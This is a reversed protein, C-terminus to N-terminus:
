SFIVAEDDIVLRYGPSLPRVSRAWRHMQGFEFYPEKIRVSNPRNRGLTLPYVVSPHQMKIASIRRFGQPYCSPESLTSVFFFTRGSTLKLLSSSGRQM